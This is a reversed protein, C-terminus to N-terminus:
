SESKESSSKQVNENQFLRTEEKDLQSRKWYDDHYFEFLKYVQM